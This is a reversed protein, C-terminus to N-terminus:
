AAVEEIWLERIDIGFKNCFKLLPEVKPSSTGNNINYVTRITVGMSKAVAEVPIGLLKQYNKFATLDFQYTIRKILM